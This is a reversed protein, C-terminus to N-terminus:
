QITLEQQVCQIYDETVSHPYGAPLFVDLAQQAYSKTKSPLQAYKYLSGNEIQLRTPLFTCGHRYAIRKVRHM